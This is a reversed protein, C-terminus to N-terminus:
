CGPLPLFNRNARREAELLHFGGVGDEENETFPLIGGPKKGYITKYETSM